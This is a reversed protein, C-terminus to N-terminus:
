DPSCVIILCIVLRHRAAPTRATIPADSAPPGAARAAKMSSKLLPNCLQSAGSTLSPPPM